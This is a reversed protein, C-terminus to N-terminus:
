DFYKLVASYSLKLPTYTVDGQIIVRPNTFGCTLFGNWNDPYTEDGNYHWDGRLPINFSFKKYLLQEQDVQASTGAGSIKVDLRNLQQYNETMVPLLSRGITGDYQVGVGGEDLFYTDSSSIQAASDTRKTRIAFVSAEIPGFATTFSSDWSVYGRIVLSVPRIRRGVRAGDGAGISITPILPLLDSGSTIMGNFSTGEQTLYATKMEPQYRPYRPIRPNQMQVATKPRSPYLARTRKFSSKKASRYSKPAYYPM